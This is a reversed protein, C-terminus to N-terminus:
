LSNLVADVMEIPMMTKAIIDQNNMGEKHLRIIVDPMSEAVEVIFNDPDYVRFCKQMWPQVMMENVFKTGSEKFKSYTTEINVAETYIELNNNDKTIIQKGFILNHAYQKQWIALGGKYGVNINNINMEIEQDLLEEYFKRSTMVDEVMLCFGMVKVTNMLKGKLYVIFQM